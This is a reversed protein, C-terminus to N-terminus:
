RMGSWASLAAAGMMPSAARRPPQHNHMYHRHFKALDDYFAAELESLRGDACQSIHELMPVLTSRPLDGAGDELL